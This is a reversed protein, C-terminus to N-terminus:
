NLRHNALVTGKGETSEPSIELRYVIPLYREFIQHLHKYLSFSYIYNM